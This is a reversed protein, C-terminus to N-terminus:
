NTESYSNQEGTQIYSIIIPEYISNMIFQLYYCSESAHKKGFVDEYEVKGWIFLKRNGFKFPDIVTGVLDDGLPIELVTSLATSKPGAFLSQTYVSSALENKNHIPFIPPNNFETKIWQLSVTMKKTPTTGNNKWKPILRFRSIVLSSSVLHGKDKLLRLLTQIHNSKSAVILIPDKPFGALEEWSFDEKRPTGSMDIFSCSLKNMISEIYIVDREVNESSALRLDCRSPYAIDEQFGDLYVFACTSKKTSDLQLKQIANTKKNLFVLFLTLLISFVGNHQNIYIFTEIIWDVCAKFQSM